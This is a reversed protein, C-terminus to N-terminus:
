RLEESYSQKVWKLFNLIDERASAKAADRYIKMIEALVDKDTYPVAELFSWLDYPGIKDLNQESWSQYLNSQEIKPIIKAGTFTRTQKAEDKEVRENSHTRLKEAVQKAIYLGKSTLTYGNKASGIVLNQYKPKCHLFTRNVRAADPYQPFGILSFSNPFMKFVTVTVNEFTGLLGFTNILRDLGYSLLHDKNIGVYRSPEFPDIKDIHAEDKM